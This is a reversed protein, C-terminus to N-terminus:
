ACNAEGEKPEVPAMEEWQAFMAKNRERQAEREDESMAEFVARPTRATYRGDPWRWLLMECELRSKWREPLADIGAQDLTQANLAQRADDIRSLIEQDTLMRAKSRRVEAVDRNPFGALIKLCESITPFWQCQELAKSVLYSLTGNSYGGLKAQYLKLRLKGSSDDAKRPLIDLSKMCRLFHEEDCREPAPLPSDAIERVLALTTDDLRKPLSDLDLYASATTSPAPLTTADIQNDVIGPLLAGLPKSTETM